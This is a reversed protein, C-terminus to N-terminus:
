GNQSGRKARAPPVTASDGGSRQSGKRLERISRVFSEMKAAQREDWRLGFEKRLRDPLLMATMNRLTGTAPNRVPPELVSAAIDRATSTVTLTDGEVMADFYSRFEAHSGPVEDAPIGLLRAMRSHDAFYSDRAREDVTEVFREYVVLATDALTAWVWRMLEPDRGHYTTESSFPGADTGLVGRVGAHAREVSRAAAVAHSRRGFAIAGMADLTRQLRGLPDTRFNSHESVGAAILPHAIELLLARGGGFLVAQEGNIRRLWCDEPFLSEEDPILPNFGSHELLEGDDAPLPAVLSM